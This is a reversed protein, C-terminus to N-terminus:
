VLGCSMKPSCPNSFCSLPDASVTLRNNMPDLVALFNPLTSPLRVTYAYVGALILADLDTVLRRPVAGGVTNVVAAAAMLDHLEVLHSGNMVTQAWTTVLTRNGNAAPPGLLQQIALGPHNSIGLAHGIEHAALTFLDQGM